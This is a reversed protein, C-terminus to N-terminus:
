SRTPARELPPRRRSSGGHCHAALQPSSQWRSRTKVEPTCWPVCKSAPNSASTNTGTTTTPPQRRGNDRCWGANPRHGGRPDAQRRQERLQTLRMRCDYYTSTGPEADDGTIQTLQQSLLKPDTKFAAMGACHSLAAYWMWCRATFFLAPVTDRRKSSVPLQQPDLMPLRAPQSLIYLGLRQRKM